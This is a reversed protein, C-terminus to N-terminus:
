DKWGRGAGEHLVRKQTKQLFGTAHAYLRTPLWRMQRKIVGIAMRKKACQQEVKFRVRVYIINKIPRPCFDIGM